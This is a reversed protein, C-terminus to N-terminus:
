PKVVKGGVGFRKSAKNINRAIQRRLKTPYRRKFRAFKAKAAIIHTRTRKQNIEGTPTRFVLPYGYQEPAAYDSPRKAGLQWYKKPPKGHGYRKGSKLTIIRGTKVRGRKAM